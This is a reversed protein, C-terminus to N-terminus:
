ANVINKPDWECSSLACVTVGDGGKNDNVLGLRIM